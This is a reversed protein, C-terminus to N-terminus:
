KLADTVVSHARKIESAPQVEFSVGRIMKGKGKMQDSVIRNGASRYKSVLNKVSGLSVDTRVNKAVTDLFQGNMVQTPNDKVKKMIATIVLQQRRQRGYDGDADEHRMRSFNLAADGNLHYSKGKTFSSGGYSFTLPSEVNVGGVSDVLKTLGGMNIMIYGDLKIDLLKEVAAIASKANGYAYASNIKVTAGYLDIKTDRPISMMTTTKTKPNLVTVIMTDTRGKYSRGLDGTDTGLMLYAVPKGQQTHKDGTSTKVKNWSYVQSTAHHIQYYAYASAVGLVGLMVFLVILLTRKLRRNKGKSHHRHNNSM